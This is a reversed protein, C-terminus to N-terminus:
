KEGKVYDQQTIIFFQESSGTKMVELRLESTASDADVTFSSATTDFAQPLSTRPLKEADPNSSEVTDALGSYCKNLINLMDKTTKEFHFTYEESASDGPKLSRKVILCVDEVGSKKGEPVAPNTVIARVTGASFKEPTQSGPRPFMTTIFIPQVGFVKGATVTVVAAEYNGLSLRKTGDLPDPANLYSISIDSNPHKAFNLDITRGCGSNKVTFNETGHRQGIYLYKSELSEGDEDTICEIGPLLQAGQSFVLPTTAEKYGTKRANVDLVTSASFGDTRELTFSAIGNPGTKGFAVQIGSGREHVIIDADEVKEKATGFVNADFSVVAKGAPLSNPLLVVTLQRDELVKFTLTAMDGKRDLGLNMDIGAAASNANTTFTFSGSYKGGAPLRGINVESNALTLAANESKLKMRVDNFNERTDNYVNFDVKYGVGKLLEFVGSVWRGGSLSLSAGAPTPILKKEADQYAAEFRLSCDATCINRGIFFRLVKLENPGVVFVDSGDVKAKSGYRVEIPTDNPVNERVKTLVEFEYDQAVTPELTGFGAVVQKAGGSPDLPPCDSYIANPDFCKSFTAQSIFSSPALAQVTIKGADSTLESDLGARVIAKVDDAKKVVHVKFRFMYEKNAEIRGAKSGDKAYVELFAVDFDGTFIGSGVKDLVVEIVKTARPTIGYDITATRYYGEKEVFVFVKKDASFEVADTLGSAKTKAKALLRGTIRDIFHVNADAIAQRNEHDLAKVQLSGNSIVLTIPLEIAQGPALSKTPSEGELSLGNVAKSAKAKYNAPLLNKFEAIGNQGTQVADSGSVPVSFGTMYLWTVAGEIATGGFDTVIAKATGSNSGPGTIVAKTLQVVTPNTDSTGILDADRIIALVYEPHSAVVSYKKTKDLNSFQVTGERNSVDELSAPKNDNTRSSNFWMTAKVGGVAAKTVSDVFKLFIKKADSPKRLPVDVRKPAGSSFETDGMDFLDSTGIFYPTDKQPVAEVYYTGLPIREALVVGTADTTGLRLVSQANSKLTLGAGEVPKMTDEDFVFIRLKGFLKKKTLNITVKDRQREVEITKRATEYGTVEITATLSGCNAQVLVAQRGGKKTFATPSPSNSCTFSFSVEMDSAIISGREDFVEFDVRKTGAKTDRQLKITYKKGPSVDTKDSYERFGIKKATVSIGNGFFATQFEGFSDTTKAEARAALSLSVTAGAVASNSADVVVFKAPLTGIGFFTLIGGIFRSIFGIPDKVFEELLRGWFGLPDAGGYSITVLLLLLLFLAALLFLIFSPFYKDIPDIISYVPVKENIKDLVAYYRDEFFYYVDKVAQFAGELM